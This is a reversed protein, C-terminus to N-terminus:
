AAELGLFRAANRYQLQAPLTNLEDAKRRTPATSKEVHVMMIDGAVRSTLATGRGRLICCCSPVQNLATESGRM